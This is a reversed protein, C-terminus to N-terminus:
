KFLGTINDWFSKSSKDVQTTTDTVAKNISDLVNGTSPMDIKYIRWRYATNFAGLFNSSPYEELYLKATKSEPNQYENQFTLTTTAYKKSSGSYEVGSMVIPKNNAFTRLTKINNENGWSSLFGSQTIDALVKKEEDTVTQTPNEILQTFKKVVNEPNYQWAAVNLILTYGAGLFTGIVLLVILTQFTRKVPFWTGVMAWFVNFNAQKPKFNQNPNNLNSNGNSSDWKLNPNTPKTPFNNQVNGLNARSDSSFGPKQSNNEETM